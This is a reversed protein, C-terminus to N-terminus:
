TVHAANQHRENHLPVHQCSLNGSLVDYNFWTRPLTSKREAM